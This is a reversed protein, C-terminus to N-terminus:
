EQLRGLGLLHHTLSTITLAGRGVLGPPELVHQIELRGPHFRDLRYVIQGGIVRLVGLILTFSGVLGVGVLGLRALGFVVAGQQVDGGLRPM